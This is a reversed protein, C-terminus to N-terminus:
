KSVDIDGSPRSELLDWKDQLEQSFQSKVASVNVKCLYNSTNEVGFVTLAHNSGKRDVLSIYYANSDM